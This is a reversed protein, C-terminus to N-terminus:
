CCCCQVLLLLLVPSVVAVVVDVVLWSCSVVVIGKGDRGCRLDKWSKPATAM